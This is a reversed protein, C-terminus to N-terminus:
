RREFWAMIADYERQLRQGTEEMSLGEEVLGHGVDPIRRFTVDRGQTRLQAYLAETSLIPVAEDRMGSVLYVRARSRALEAATSHAFFSSWRLYTHGWMFKSTSRPDAAIAAYQADLEQLRELKDDDSADARHIGAAFDFLQSPGNAGVLAVDTVAPMARALAAAMPAGESLGIVLVRRADVEPRGLAHRLATELTALWTNFSFHDNFAAGCGNAVGKGEPPPADPQYPKDVSMVAYRGQAALQVWSYITSSRNDTGLGSFPPLCGSGQIYLVLPARQAPKSLYYRVPARGDEHLTLRALQLRPTDFREEQVRPGAAHASGCALVAALLIPSSTIRM